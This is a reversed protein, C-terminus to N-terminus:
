TVCLINLVLTYYIKACKVNLISSIRSPNLVIQYHNKITIVKQYGQKAHM